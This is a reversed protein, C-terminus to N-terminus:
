DRASPPAVEPLAVGERPDRELVRPSRLTQWMRCRRASPPGPRPARARRSVTRNAERLGERSAPQHAEYSRDDVRPLAPAGIASGSAREALPIRVVRMAKRRGLVGGTTTTPM